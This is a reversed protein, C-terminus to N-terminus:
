MGTMKDPMYLSPRKDEECLTKEANKPTKVEFELITLGRLTVLWSTSMGHM